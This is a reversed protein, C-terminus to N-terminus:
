CYGGAFTYGLIDKLYSSIPAIPGANGRQMVDTHFFAVM